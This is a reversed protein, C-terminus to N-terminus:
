TLVNSLKDIESKHKNLLDSESQSFNQVNTHNPGGRYWNLVRERGAAYQQASMGSAAVGDSQAKSETDRIKGNLADAQAGYKEAEVMWAPKPAEAGCQKDAEATDAKPDFGPGMIKRQYDQTAKRIGATDGKAQMPQIQQQFAAVDAMMANRQAPDSMMQQQKQQIIQQRKKDQDSFVNRRCDSVKRNAQDWAQRDADHGQLTASQKKYADDRQKALEDRQALTQQTATLGKLVGILSEETLEPGFATSPKANPNQGPNTTPNATATKAAKKVVDGIQARAAPPTLAFLLIALALRPLVTGDRRPVSRMAM